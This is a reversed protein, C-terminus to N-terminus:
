EMSTLGLRKLPIRRHAAALFHQLHRRVLDV